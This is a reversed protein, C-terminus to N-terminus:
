GLMMGDVAREEWKGKSLQVKKPLVCQVKAGFPISPGRFHGKGYRRNWASDGDVVRINM